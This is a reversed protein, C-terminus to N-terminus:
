SMITFYQVDCKKLLAVSLKKFMCYKKAEIILQLFYSKL